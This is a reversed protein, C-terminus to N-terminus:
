PRDIVNAVGVGVGVGSLLSRFPWLMNDIQYGVWAFVNPPVYVVDDEALYVNQDTDGKLLLAKLNVKFKETEEPGARIVRVRTPAARHTFGGVQGILDAITQEGTYPISGTRGVEGYIFVKKSTRRTVTILLDVDKYYRSYEKELKEKVQMPTLGQVFVEGVLPLAVVGDQRITVQRTALEEPALAEVQFSDPPDLVYTANPLHKRSRDLALAENPEEGQVPQGAEEGALIRRNLEDVQTSACGVLVMGCLAVSALRLASRM